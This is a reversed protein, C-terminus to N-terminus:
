KGDETADLVPGAALRLSAARLRDLHFDEELLPGREHLPSREWRRKRRAHKREALIAGMGLDLPRPLGQILRAMKDLRGGPIGSSAADSTELAFAMAEVADMFGLAIEPEDALIAVDFAIGLALAGLIPLLENEAPLPPLDDVSRAPRPGHPRGGGPPTLGHLMEELATRRAATSVFLRQAIRDRLAAPALDALGPEGIKEVLVPRHFCALLFLDAALSGADFGASAPAGFRPRAGGAGPAAPHLVDFVLPALDRGLADLRNREGTAEKGLQVWALSERWFFASLLFAKEPAGPGPFCRLYLSTVNALSRLRKWDGDGMAAAARQLAIEREHIWAERALLQRLGAKRFMRVLFVLIPHLRANHALARALRLHARRSASVVLFFAASSVVFVMGVFLWWTLSAPYFLHYAYGSFWLHVHDHFQYVWLRWGGADPVPHAVLRWYFLVAGILPASWLVRMWFRRFRRPIVAKPMSKLFPSRFFNM